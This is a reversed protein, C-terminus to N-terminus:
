DLAKSLPPDPTDARSLPNPFLPPPLPATLHQSPVPPPSSAHTSHQGAHACIQPHCSCCCPLHTSSRPFPSASSAVTRLVEPLCKM